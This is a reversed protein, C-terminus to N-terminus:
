TQKAPGRQDNNKKASLHKRRVRLQPRLLGVLGQPLDHGSGDLIHEVLSGLHPSPPVPPAFSCNDDVGKELFNGPFSDRSYINKEAHRELNQICPSLLKAEFKRKKEIIFFM